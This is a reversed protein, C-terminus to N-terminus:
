LDDLYAFQQYKFSLVTMVVTPLTFSTYDSLFNFCSPIINVIKFCFHKSSYANLIESKYTGINAVTM